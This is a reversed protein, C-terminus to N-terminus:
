ESRQVTKLNKVEFTYESFYASFNPGTNLISLPKLTCSHKHAGDNIIIDVCDQHVFEPMARVRIMEDMLLFTTNVMVGSSHSM